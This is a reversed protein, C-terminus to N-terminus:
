KRAFITMAKKLIDIEQKLRMNEKQIRALEAPTVEEDAGEVPSYAKIWKYVTTESIGYESVLDSVPTGNRYLEVVTKRFEENFRKQAM